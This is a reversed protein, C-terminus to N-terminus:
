KERRWTKTFTFISIQQNIQLCKTEKMKKVNEHFTNGVNHLFWLWLEGNPDNCNKKLEALSNKM